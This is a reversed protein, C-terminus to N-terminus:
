YLSLEVYLIIEIDLFTYHVVGSDKDQYLLDQAELAWNKKSPDQHISNKEKKLMFRMIRNYSSAM